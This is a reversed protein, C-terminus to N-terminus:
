SKPKLLLSFFHHYSKPVSTITPRIPPSQIPPILLNGKLLYESHNIPRVTFKLGIVGTRRIKKTKMVQTPFRRFFTKRIPNSQLRKSILFFPLAISRQSELFYLPSKGIVISM